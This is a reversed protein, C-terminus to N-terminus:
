EVTRIQERARNSKKYKKEYTKKKSSQQADETRRGEERFLPAMLGGGHFHEESPAVLPRAPKKAVGHPRHLSVNLLLFRVQLRLEAEWWATVAMKQAFVVQPHFPDLM